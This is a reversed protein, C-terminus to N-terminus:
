FVLGFLVISPKKTKGYAMKYILYIMGFLTGSRVLGDIIPHDLLYVISMNGLIRGNLQQYRRITASVLHSWDSSEVILQLDDASPPSCYFIVFLLFLLVTLFCYFFRNDHIHKRLTLLM